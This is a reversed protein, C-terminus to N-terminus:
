EVDLLPRGTRTHTRKRAKPKRGGAGRVRVPPRRRRAEMYADATALHYRLKSNTSDSIPTAGLEAARSEVWQVSLQYRGALQESTAYKAGDPIPLVDDRRRRNDHALEIFSGALQDALREVLRGSLKDALEDLVPGPLLEDDRSRRDIARGQGPREKSPLEAVVPAAIGNRQTSVRTSSVALEHWEDPSAVDGDAARVRQTLKEPMGRSLYRVRGGFGGGRGPRLRGCVRGSPGRGM